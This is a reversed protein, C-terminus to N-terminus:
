RDSFELGITLNDTLCPWQEREQQWNDAKHQKAYTTFAVSAYLHENVMAKQVTYDVAEDLENAFPEGILSHIILNSVTMDMPILPIGAKVMFRDNVEEILRHALYAEDMLEDLGVHGAVIEPPKLFFDEAVKFYPEAYQAINAQKTIARAAELFQPAHEIYATVFELLSQEPNQKPLKIALHVNNDCKAALLKALHGTKAEHAKAMAITEHIANISM